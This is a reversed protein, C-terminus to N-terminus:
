HLTPTVSETIVPETPDFILSETLPIYITTQLDMTISDSAGVSRITPYPITEPDMPLYLGIINITYAETINRTTPPNYTITESLALPIMTDEPLTLIDVVAFGLSVIRADDDESAVLTGAPMYVKLAEGIVPATVSRIGRRSSMAIIGDHAIFKPRM